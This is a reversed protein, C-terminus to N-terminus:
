AHIKEESIQKRRSYGLIKQNILDFYLMLAQSGTQYVEFGKLNGKNSYQCVLKANELNGHAKFTAKVLDKDEKTRAKLVLTKM